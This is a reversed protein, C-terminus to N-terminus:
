GSVPQCVCISSGPGFDSKRNRRRLIGPCIAAFLVAAMLQALVSPEPLPTITLYGFAGPTSGSGAHALADPAPAPYELHVLEWVKGDSASFNIIRATYPDSAAGYQAILSELSSVYTFVIPMGNVQGTMAVVTQCNFYGCSPGAPENPITTLIGSAEWTNSPGYGSNVFDFSFSDARSTSSFSLFLVISLIYRTAQRWSPPVRNGVYVM